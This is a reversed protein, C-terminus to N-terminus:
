FNRSRHAAILATSPSFRLKTVRKLTCGLTWLKPVVRPSTEKFAAHKSDGRSQVNRKTVDQVGAMDLGSFTSRFDATTQGSLESRKCTALPGAPGEELGGVVTFGGVAAGGLAAAGDGLGAGETGAVGFNRPDFERFGTKVWPNSAEDEPNGAGAGAKPAGPEFGPNGAEADPNNAEVEPKGVAIVSDGGEVRTWFWGAESGAATSRGTGGGSVKSWVLRPNGGEFGPDGGGFGPEVEPPASNGAAAEPTREPATEAGGSTGGAPKKGARTAGVESVESCGSLAGTSSLALRCFGGASGVSFTVAGTAGPLETSIPPSSGTTAVGGSTAAGPAEASPPGGEGAEAVGASTTAGCGVFVAMSVGGTDWGSNGGGEANGSGDEMGGANGEAARDSESGTSGEEASADAAGDPAGDTTGDSMGTKPNDPIGDATGDSMGTSPDDPAGDATGTVSNGWAGEATRDPAEGAM